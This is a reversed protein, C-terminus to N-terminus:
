ETCICSERRSAGMGRSHSVHPPNYKYKLGSNKCLQECDQEKKDLYNSAILYLSIVLILIAAIRTNLNDKM